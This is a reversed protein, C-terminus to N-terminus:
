YNFVNVPRNKVFCCIFKRLMIVISNEVDIQEHLYAILLAVFLKAEIKNRKSIVNGIKYNFHFFYKSTDLHGSEFDMLKSNPDM